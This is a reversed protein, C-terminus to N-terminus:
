KRGRDPIKRGDRRMREISGRISKYSSRGTLIAIDQLTRGKALHYLILDDVQKDIRAGQRFKFGHSRGIRYITQPSCYYQKALETAPVDNQLEAIIQNQADDDFIRM